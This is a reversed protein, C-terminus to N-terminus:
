NNFFRQYFTWGEKMAMKQSRQNRRDNNEVITTDRDCNIGCTRNSQTFILRRECGTPTQYETDEEQFCDNFDGSECHLGIVASDNVVPPVTPEPESRKMKAGALAKMMQFITSLNPAEYFNDSVQLKRVHVLRGFIKIGLYCYRM